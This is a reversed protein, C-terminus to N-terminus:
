SPTSRCSSCAASSPSGSCTAAIMWSGASPHFIFNGLTTLEAGHDGWNLAVLYLDAPRVAGHPPGFRARYRASVQGKLLRNVAVSGIAVGISFIALFLTAVQEDAGLVNKVLPPFHHRLVAGITWFFSIALIALFLRPIHM